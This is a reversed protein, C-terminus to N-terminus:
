QSWVVVNMLFIGFCFVAVGANFPTGNDVFLAVNFACAVLVVFSPISSGPKISMFGAESVSAVLWV